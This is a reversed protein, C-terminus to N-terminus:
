WCAGGSEPMLMRDCMLLLTTKGAGNPGVVAVKKGHEAAFSIGRLSPPRNPYSYCVNDFELVTDSM